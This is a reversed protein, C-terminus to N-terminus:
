AAVGPQVLGAGLLVSLARPALEPARVGSGLARDTGALGDVANEEGVELWQEVQACAATRLAELVAADVAVGDDDVRYPQRVARDVLLSARALLREADDPDVVSAADQSLWGPEEDSGLLDVPTAHVVPM